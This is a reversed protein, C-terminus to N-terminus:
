SFWAASLIDAPRVPRLGINGRMGVLSQGVGSGAKPNPRHTRQLLLDFLAPQLDELQDVLVGFRDKALGSKVLAHHRKRHAVLMELDLHKPEDVNQRREAM